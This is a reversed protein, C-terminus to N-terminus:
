SGTVAQDLRNLTDELQEAKVLPFGVKNLLEQDTVGSWDYTQRVGLEIKLKLNEAQLGQLPGDPELLGDAHVHHVALPIGAQLCNNGEGYATAPDPNEIRGLLRLAHERDM